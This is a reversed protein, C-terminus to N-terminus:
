CLSALDATLERRVKIARVRNRGAKKAQYLASDATNFFTDATQGRASEASVAGISVTVFALEGAGCHEISLREVITRCQKAVVEGNTTNPLLVGFEEGGIRAIMDAPRKLVRELESAVLRLCRDGAQHGYADNFEKFYDIDIVLLAIPKDERQARRFEQEFYEDFFRRNAIGTLGDTKTLRELKANAQNLAQNKIDIEELFLKNQRMTVLGFWSSLGFFFIGVAFVAWPTQTRKQAFYTQTPTAEIVWRRGGLDLVSHTYRFDLELLQEPADINPQKFLVKNDTSAGIDILKFEMIDEEGRIYTESLIEGLKFVGLVFGVLTDRRHQVSQPSVMQYVPIFSLLGSHEDNAQVLKLGESLQLTGTDRARHIVDLRLANSGLDYGLAAENGAMPEIFHVPYYVSRDSARVMEGSAVRETFFLNPNGESLQAEINARESDPVRPIWELAQISPHRSIITEALSLFEDHGLLGYNDYALRLSYLAEFHLEMAQTIADAKKDVEAQFQQQINKTEVQYFLGFLLCSLVIGTMVSFLTIYYLRREM